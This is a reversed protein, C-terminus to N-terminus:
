CLRLPLFLALKKKVINTGATRLVNHLRPQFIELTETDINEPVKDSQFKTLTKTLQSSHINMM